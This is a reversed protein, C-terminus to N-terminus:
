QRVWGEFYEYGAAKSLRNLWVHNYKFGSEECFRRLQRITFTDRSRIWDLIRKQNEESIMPQPGRKAM